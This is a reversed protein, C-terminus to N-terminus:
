GEKLWMIGHTDATSTGAGAAMNVQAASTCKWQMKITRAGASLGTLAYVIGFWFSGATSSSCRVGGIGDDGQGTGDALIDFLVNVSGANAWLHAHFGVYLTGGAFDTGTSLSLDTADIDVFSTSSTNWDAADNYVYQAEPPAKLFDLNDVIDTNWISATILDGTIRTTPSTWAM